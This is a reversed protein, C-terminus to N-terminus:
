FQGGRRLILSTVAKQQDANERILISDVIRGKYQFIRIM